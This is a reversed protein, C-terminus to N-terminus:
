LCIGGLVILELAGYFVWSQWTMPVTTTPIITLLLCITALTNLIM